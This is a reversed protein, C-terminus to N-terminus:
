LRGERLFWRKDRAWIMGADRLEGLAAEIEAAGFGAIRISTPVGAARSRVMRRLISTQLPTFAPVAAAAATV